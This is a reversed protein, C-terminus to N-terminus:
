AKNRYKNKEERRKALWAQIEDIDTFYKGNMYYFRKISKLSKIELISSNIFYANEGIYKLSNLKEIPTNNYFAHGGIYELSDQERIKSNMYDADGGISKLCNQKEIPTNVYFAHGGIIELSDQERIQSYSYHATGGIYKLHKQEQIQSDLFLAKRTIHELHNQEQISSNRFYASGNIRIINDNWFLPLHNDDKIDGSVTIKGNGDTEIFTYNKLIAISLSEDLRSSQQSVGNVLDLTANGYDTQLTIQNGKLFKINNINFGNWLTNAGINKITKNQRFVHGDIMREMDNNLLTAEGHKIYFGDGYYIGNEEKGFVFLRNKSDNIVNEAFNMKNHNVKNVGAYDYISQELGGIIINLNNNYTADPNTNGSNIDHNYRNIIKLYGSKKNIQINLVSTGFPDERHHRLGNINYSGDNNKLGKQELYDKWSKSLNDQTLVSARLTEKADEKIIYFILNDRLRENKNNLSCITSGGQYYSRYSEFEEESKVEYFSYGITKLLEQPPLQPEKKIPIENNSLFEQELSEAMNELIYAMHSKIPIKFKLYEILKDKSDFAIPMRYRIMKAVREGFAKKFLL